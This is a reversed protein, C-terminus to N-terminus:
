YDYLDYRPDIAFVEEEQGDQAFMDETVELANLNYLPQDCNSETAVGFRKGTLALNVPSLRAKQGGAATNLLNVLSMVTQDRSVCRASVIPATMSTPTILTRHAHHRQQQQQLSTGRASLAVSDSSTVAGSHVTRYTFVTSIGGNAQSARHATPGTVQKIPRNPTVPSPTSIPSPTHGGRSVISPTWQATHRHVHQLSTSTSSSVHGDPAQRVSLPPTTGTHPVASRQSLPGSQSM